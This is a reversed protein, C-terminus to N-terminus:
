CRTLNLLIDIENKDVSGFHLYRHCNPCLAVANEVTDEGGKSLMHIHHVELYPTDDKKRIFPAKTKCRECFGNARFLVETIVDPNREFCTTINQVKNPIKRSINLRKKRESSSDKLSVRTDKDLEEYYTSTTVPRLHEFLNTLKL